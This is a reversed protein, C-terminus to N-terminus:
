NLGQKLNEIISNQDKIENEKIYDEYLYEKSLRYLPVLFLKEPAKLEGSIGVAV